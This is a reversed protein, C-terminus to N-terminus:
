GLLLTFLLFPLPNDCYIVEDCALQDILLTEPMCCVDAVSLIQRDSPFKEFGWVCFYRTVPSSTITDGETELRTLQVTCKLCLWM